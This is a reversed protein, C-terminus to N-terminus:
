ENGSRVLSLWNSLDLVLIKSRSVHVRQVARADAATILNLQAKIRMKTSRLKKDQHAGSKKKKKKEGVNKGLAFRQGKGCRMEPKTSCPESGIEGDILINNEVLLEGPDNHHHGCSV